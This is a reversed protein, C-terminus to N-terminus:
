AKKRQKKLLKRLVSRPKNMLDYQKPRRKKCRPEVRDPRYPNVILPPLVDGPRAHRLWKYADAFSIRSVPVSQRHAAELMVARVLNYTLAFIALEKRVGQETQCHVVDMKMTTKLHGINTEVDWRRLRLDLLDTAPYAVPDLLTTVLTITIKGLGPRTVRRRLERVIISAPLADYAARSMRKPKQNPKFYEVLQDEKGLSKVWRSTPRGKVPHKAGEANHPRNKAFSVIRLHHVPFLGHLGQQALAALHPYGSFTDDGILIDGADLHLHAEPTEALDGTRLPSAWADVLMGTAASFLVLLHAVPFGCGDQQGSPLGFVKRLEKTDPMSFTSGDVHFTRHGHWSHQQRRTQPMLRENVAGLLDQYVALPLRARAACYAQASFLTPPPPSPSPSASPPPSSRGILRVESCPVNGHLVQQIFLGITTAPDLQRERWHLDHERCVREIADRGLVGLPDDKIRELSSAISAM